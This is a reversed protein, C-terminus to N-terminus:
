DSRAKKAKLVRAITDELDKRQYPKGLFADPRERHQDAMVQAENYGSSLIVPIDPSLERLAVLTNWGDMRPMTLDCLVCRLEDRHTRFVDVAELGDKAEIVTYGLHILLNAALKRVQEEDEVVLVTAGTETEPDKEEGGTKQTEPVADRRPIEETSVPLFVRFTSGRGPKSHVTFGGGHAKVIGMAVPLGLGRGTAKTTFFPDFIKEIDKEPIGCGKDAVELCAYPISKPQWDPPFRRLASIEARSVTKIALKVAGKEITSAEWANNVLNTLVQQIQNANALVVLGSSPFDAEIPMGEPASAQLLSLSQRCTEHLNIPEYRGHTHGLYTLMLGSVEMAQYSASMAEILFPLIDSGKPLDDIAMELNGMVAQLQNNFHHAIAGAMRGLSEAKQLQRNQSELKLTEKETRKRETVDTHTGIMRLPNGYEDWEIVKGRDMVWIWSGDKHKMRAECQYIGTKDAFHKELLADSNRLDDPHCLDVWTQISLPKLEDLTYGAITAWQETFVVEGTQVRWDWLGTNTAQLAFDFRQTTKLLDEEAQEDYAALRNRLHENQLEADLLKVKMEHFMERIEELSMSELPPPAEAPAKQEAKKRIQAPDPSGPAKYRSYLKDKDDKSDPM